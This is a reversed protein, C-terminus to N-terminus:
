VLRAHSAAMVQHMYETALWLRYAKIKLIFNGNRYRAAHM